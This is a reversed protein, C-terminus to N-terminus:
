ERSKIKAAFVKARDVGVTIPAEISVRVKDKRIDFITVTVQEGSPLSIVVAEMLKRSVVLRAM